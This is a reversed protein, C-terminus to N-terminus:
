TLSQERSDVQDIILVNDLVAVHDGRSPDLRAAVHRQPHDGAM